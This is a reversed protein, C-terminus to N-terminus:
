GHNSSMYTNGFHVVGITESLFCLILNMINLMSFDPFIFYVVRAQYVLLIAFFNWRVNLFIYVKLAKGNIHVSVLTLEQGDLVLPPTSGTEYFLVM